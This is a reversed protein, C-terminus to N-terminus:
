GDSRLQGRLANIFYPALRQALKYLSISQTVIKEGDCVPCKEGRKIGKGECHVCPTRIDLKTNMLDAFQMQLLLEDENVEEAFFPEPM